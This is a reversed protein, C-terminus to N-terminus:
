NHHQSHSGAFFRDHRRQVRQALKAKGTDQLEVRCQLISLKLGMWASDPLNRLGFPKKDQHKTTDVLPLSAYLSARHFGGTPDLQLPTASCAGGCRPNARSAPFSTHAGRITRRGASHQRNKWRLHIRHCRTHQGRRLKDSLRASPTCGGRGPTSVLRDAAVRRGPGSQTYSLNSTERAKGQMRRGVILACSPQGVILSTSLQSDSEPGPSGISGRERSSATGTSNGGRTQQWSCGPRTM